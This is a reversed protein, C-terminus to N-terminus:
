LKTTKRGAMCLLGGPLCNLRYFRRAAHVFPLSIISLGWLQLSLSDHIHTSPFHSINRSTETTQYVAGLVFFLSMEFKKCFRFALKEMKWIYLIEALFLVLSMKWHLKTTPKITDHLPLNRIVREALSLKLRLLAFFCFYIVYMNGMTGRNWTNSLHWHLIRWAELLESKFYQIPDM